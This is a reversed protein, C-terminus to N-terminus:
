RLQSLLISVSDDLSSIATYIVSRLQALTPIYNDQWHSTNLGNEAFVPHISIRLGPAVRGSSSTRDRWWELWRRIAPHYCTLTDDLERNRIRPGSITWGHGWGRPALALRVSSQSRRRAASLSANTWWTRDPALSSYTLPPPTLTVRGWMASGMRSVSRTWQRGDRVCRRDGVSDCRRLPPWRVDNELATMAFTFTGSSPIARVDGVRNLSIKQIVVRCQRSGPGCDRVCSIRCRRRMLCARQGTPTLETSIWLIWLSLALTISCCPGHIECLM